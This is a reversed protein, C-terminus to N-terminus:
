GWGFRKRPAQSLWQKLHWPSPLALGAGCLTARLFILPCTQLGPLRGEQGSGMGNAVGRKLRLQSGLGLGEQVAEEEPGRAEDRKRGRPKELVEWSVPLLLRSPLSAPAGLSLGRALVTAAEEVKVRQRKCLGQHTLDGNGM